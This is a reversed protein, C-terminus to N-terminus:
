QDVQSNNLYKLVFWSMQAENYFDLHVEPEYHYRNQWDPVIVDVTGKTFNIDVAENKYLGKHRRITFGLERKTKWSIMMTSQGYEKVLRYHLEEFERVKHFIILNRKITVKM